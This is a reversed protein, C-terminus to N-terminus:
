NLSESEQCQIYPIYTTDSKHLNGLFLLLFLNGKLESGTREQYDNAPCGETPEWPHGAMLSWCSSWLNVRFSWSGWHEYVWKSQKVWYQRISSYMWCILLFFIFRCFRGWLCCLKSKPSTEKLLTKNVCFHVAPGRLFWPLRFCQLLVGRLLAQSLVVRFRGRLIWYSQLLPPAHM